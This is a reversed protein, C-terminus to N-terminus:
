QRKSILRCSRTLTPAGIPSSIGHSKSQLVSGVEPVNETTHFIFKYLAGRHRLLTGIDQM